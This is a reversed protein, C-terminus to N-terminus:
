QQRRRPPEQSPSVPWASPKPCQSEFTLTIWLVIWAQTPTRRAASFVSLVRQARLHGLNRQADPQAEQQHVVNLINHVQTRLVDADAELLQPDNFLQAILTANPVRESTLLPVPTHPASSNRASARLVPLANPNTMASLSSPDFTADTPFTSM